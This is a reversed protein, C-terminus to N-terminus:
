PFFTIQLSKITVEGTGRAYIMVRFFGNEALVCGYNSGFVAVTRGDAADLDLQVLNKISGDKRLVAIEGNHITADGQTQVSVHVSVIAQAALALGAATPPVTNYHGSGTIIRVDDANSLSVHFGDADLGTSAIARSKRHFSLAHFSALVGNPNTHDRGRKAVARGAPLRKLTYYEEGAATWKNVEEFRFLTTELRRYGQSDTLLYRM